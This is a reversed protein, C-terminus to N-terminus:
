TKKRTKRESRDRKKDKRWYGTTSPLKYAFHSM